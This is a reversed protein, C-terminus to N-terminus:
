SLGTLHHCNVSYNLVLLNSSDTLGLFASIFKSISMFNHPSRLYILPLIRRCHPPWSFASRIELDPLIGPLLHCGARFYEQRSLGILESSGPPICTHPQLSSSVGSCACVCLFVCLFSHLITCVLQYFYIKTVKVGSRSICLDAHLKM